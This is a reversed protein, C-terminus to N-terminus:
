TRGTKSRRQYISIAEKMKEILDDIHIPKIVYDIAGAKLGEESAEMSMHGTLLIVPLDPRIKKIRKMIEVGDEGPMKVDLVVVDFSEREVLDVAELGKTVGVAQLGRLEMREVLTTVLEEEDDVILIKFDTM